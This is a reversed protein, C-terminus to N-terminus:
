EVEKVCSIIEDLRQGLLAREQDIVLSEREKAFLPIRTSVRNGRYDLGEITISRAYSQTGGLHTIEGLDISTIGHISVDIMACLTAEDRQTELQLVLFSQTARFGKAVM